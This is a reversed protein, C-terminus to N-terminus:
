ILFIVIEQCIEYAAVPVNYVTACIQEETVVCLSCVYNDWGLGEEGDITFHEPRREGHARHYNSYQHSTSEHIFTM